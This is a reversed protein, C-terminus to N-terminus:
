NVHSKQWVCKALRSQYAVVKVFYTLNSAAYCWFHLFSAAAPM